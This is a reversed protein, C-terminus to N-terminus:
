SSATPYPIVYRVVFLSLTISGVTDCISFRTPRSDVGTRDGALTGTGCVAGATYIGHRGLGLKMAGGWRAM